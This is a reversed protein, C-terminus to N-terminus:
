GDDRHSCHYTYRCRESRRLCHGHQGWLVKLVIGVVDKANINYLTATEPRTAKGRCSMWGVSDCFAYM